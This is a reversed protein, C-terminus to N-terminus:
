RRNQELPEFRCLEFTTDDRFNWKQELRAHSKLWDQIQKSRWQEMFSFDKRTQDQRLALPTYVHFITSGSALKKELTAIAQDYNTEENIRAFLNICNIVAVRQIDPFCVFEIEPNLYRYMGPGFWERSVMLFSKSAGHEAAEKNLTAAVKHLGSERHQSMVYLQPLWFPLVIAFPLFFSVTQPLRTFLRRCALVFLLLAPVVFHIVYPGRIVTSAVVAETLIMGIILRTWNRCGLAPFQEAFWKENLIVVILSGWFIVFFTGQSIVSEWRLSIAADQTLSTSLVFQPLVILLALPGVGAKWPFWSTSASSRMAVIQPLFLVVAFVCSLLWRKLQDFNLEKRLFAVGMVFVHAIAVIAATLHSYILLAMTVGYAIGRKRDIDQRTMEVLQCNALLGLLVVMGYPRVWQAEQVLSTCFVCLLALQIALAEGLKRRFLLYTTPAISAAILVICIKLSADSAGFFTSWAKLFVYLLPPNGDQQVFLFITHWDSFQVINAAQTEDCGLSTGAVLSFITISLISILATRLVVAAKPVDGEATLQLM